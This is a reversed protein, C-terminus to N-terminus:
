RRARRQRSASPTHRRGARRERCCSCASGTVTLDGNPQCGMATSTTPEQGVDFLDNYFREDETKVM